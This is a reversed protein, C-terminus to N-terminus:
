PFTSGCVTCGILITPPSANFLSFLSSFSFSAPAPLLAGLLEEFLSGETGGSLSCNPFFQVTSLHETQAYESKYERQPFSRMKFSTLIRVFTAKHTNAANAILLGAM